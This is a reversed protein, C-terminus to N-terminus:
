RIEPLAFPDPQSAALPKKVGWVGCGMGQEQHFVFRAQANRKPNFVAKVRSINKNATATEPPIIRALLNM